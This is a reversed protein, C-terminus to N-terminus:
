GVSSLGSIMVHDLSVGVELAVSELATAIAMLPASTLTYGQNQLIVTAKRRIFVKTEPAVETSFNLIYHM